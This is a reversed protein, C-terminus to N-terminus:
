PSPGPGQRVRVRLLRRFETAPVRGRVRDLRRLWRPARLEVLLVTVRGERVEMELPQEIRLRGGSDLEVPVRGRITDGDVTLGRVVEAEIRGFTLRIRDYRGAPIGARRALLRAGSGDLDLTIERLDELLRIWEGDVTRAELAARLTLRGVIRDTRGHSVPPPTSRVLTPGPGGVSSAVPTRADAAAAPADVSDAAMEVEVQGFGGSTLDGCGAAGLALTAAAAVAGLAHRATRRTRDKM